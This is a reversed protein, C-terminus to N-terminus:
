RRKTRWDGGVVDSDGKGGIESSLSRRTKLKNMTAQRWRLLFFRVPTEAGDVDEGSGNQVTSAKVDDEAGDVIM